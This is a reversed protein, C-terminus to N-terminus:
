DVKDQMLTRSGLFYCFAAVLKLSTTILLAYRLSENGYIPMLLDSLFGGVAPGAGFGIVATVLMVTASATARQWPHAFTQVAALSIAGGLSSLTTSILLCILSTTPDPALLMAVMAPCSVTIMVAPGLLEWRRHRKVLYGGVFAGLLIGFISGVGNGTGVWWGVQSLPLEHVRIFFAPSWQLTGWSAFSYTGMALLLMRFSPKALLEKLGRLQAHDSSAAVNGRPDRVTLFLLAALVVGPAGVALFAMRWGYEDAIYAAFVLGASMGVLGGAQFISIGLIRAPGKFMDAIISHAAPVCAAEGVGVGVRALFMEFFNRAFGCAATAASWIFLCASLIVPRSKTDSLRALPLGMLAFFVAFAFGSILGIQTDSLALDAKIEEVLVSIVLRDLYCFFSVLALIALVYYSYLAPKGAQESAPATQLTDDTM